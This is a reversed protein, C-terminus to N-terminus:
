EKGCILVIFDNKRELLMEFGDDLLVVTQGNDLETEINL